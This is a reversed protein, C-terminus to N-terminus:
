TKRAVIAASKTFDALKKSKCFRKLSGIKIATCASLKPSQARDSEGAATPRSSLIPSIRKPEGPIKRDVVRVAGVIEGDLQIMYYYIFPQKIRNVTKELPEAAPSTEADGYKQYMDAFAEVQMAWIKETDNVSARILKIEM